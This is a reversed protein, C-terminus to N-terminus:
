WESTTSGSSGSTSSAAGGAAADHHRDAVALQGGLADLEVGLRDEGLLPALQERVEELSAGILRAASGRSRGGRRGALVQGLVLGGRHEGLDHGAVGGVDLDGAEQDRQPDLALRDLLEGPERPRHARQRRRDCRGGALVQEVGGAGAAAPAGEVDRRRRRQDGGAGAARDGLM